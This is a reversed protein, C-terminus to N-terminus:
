RNATYLEEHQQLYCCTSFQASLRAAREAMHGKPMAKDLLERVAAAIAQPDRTAVVRAGVDDRSIAAIAGTETGVLRPVVAAAEAYALCFGEEHSPQVYVDASELAARKDAQSLDPTVLLRDAVGLRQALSRLYALYSHDRVEGILQCRLRPFRQLLTPLAKVLDHQGKTHAYGGVTVLLPSDSVGREVCASADSVFPLAITRISGPDCGYRVAIDRVYESHVIVWPAMGQRLVWRWALSNPLFRVARAGYHLSESAHLGALKREHPALSHVTLAWRHARLVPALLQVGRSNMSLVHVFDPEFVKLAVGIEDVLRDTIPLSLAFHAAGAFEALATHSAEAVAHGRAILGGLLARVEAPVGGRMYLSVDIIILIRM